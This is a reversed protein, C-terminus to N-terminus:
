RFKPPLKIFRNARLMKTAIESLTTLGNLSLGGKKGALSEAQADSLTILGDLSLWGGDHKALLEAQKDTIATLGNLEIAGKHKALEAAQADAIATMENLNLYGVGSSRSYSDVARPYVLLGKASYYITGVCAAALVWWITVGLAYVYPRLLRFAASVREVQGRRWTEWGRQVELRQRHREARQHRLKLIEDRRKRALEQRRKSAQVKAHQNCEVKRKEHDQKELRRARAFDM